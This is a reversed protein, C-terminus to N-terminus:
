VGGCVGVDSALEFHLRAVQVAQRLKFFELGLFVRRMKGCDPHCVNLGM